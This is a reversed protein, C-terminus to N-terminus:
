FIGYRGPAFIKKPDVTGKIDSFFKKLAPNGDLAAATSYPTERYAIYGADSMKQHISKYWSRARDKESPIQPDFFVGFLAILTRPSEVILEVFFDFQYEEFVEKGLSLVREAHEGTFPVLPGTWIFGCDDNAPIFSDTPRPKESKFYVQKAFEDTPKGKFLDRAPFIQSVFQQSKGEIRAGLIILKELIKGFLGHSNSDPVFRLKGFSALHQRILKKQARIQSKTGYLGGGFTWQAIGHQKKWQELAATSLKLEKESLLHKPYRDVICLMAFDNALHPRSLLGNEFFLNRFTDIFQSFKDNSVTYEFAFFVFNKPKPMLWIGAKVVIGLNSQGFLGDLYPGLSWKYTHRCQFNESPSTSLLEGNPLIVDFGCLMGFHDAYPTLGRGKDLANGIISASETSGAADTWLSIQKKELYAYLDAYSVGPEIVAYGLSEDVEIIKKLRDLILTVGGSYSASRCGYGWNKGTSVYWIPIEKQACIRVINQTEEVTEPFLILHPTNQDPLTSKSHFKLNEEESIIQDERLFSFFNRDVINKSM